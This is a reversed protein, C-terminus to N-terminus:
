PWEEFAAVVRELSWAQKFPTIQQTAGAIANALAPYLEAVAQAVHAPLPAPKQGLEEKCIKKWDAGEPAMAKAKKLADFWASDRYYRRLIEKSLHIGNKVLRLEDPGISDVLMFERDSEPKAGPLFAFEFKGDWLEIGSQSFIERVHGAILLTLNSLKELEAQSLGGVSRAEAESLFRDSPELKTFFEVVPKELWEGPLPTKSLGLEAAYSPREALREFLSSGSPVGFRFVVELPVLANVPRQAYPRYDGIKEGRLVKVNKVRLRESAQGPPLIAGQADVLGLSHHSVGRKSLARFFLDGMTALAQGKRPLQDPMEGWDFISYRDSFVFTCSEGSPEGYVDKVSGRYLLASDPM